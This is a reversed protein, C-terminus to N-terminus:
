KGSLNYDTRKVILIPNKENVLSLIIEEIFIIINEGSKFNSFYDLRENEM